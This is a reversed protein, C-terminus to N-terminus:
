NTMFSLLKAFKSHSITLAFDMTIDEFVVDNIFTM